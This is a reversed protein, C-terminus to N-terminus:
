LAFTWHHRDFCNMVDVTLAPANPVSVDDGLLLMDSIHDLRERTVADRRGFSVCLPWDRGNGRVTATTSGQVYEVEDSDRLGYRERDMNADLTCYVTVNIEGSLYISTLLPHGDLQLVAPLLAHSISKKSSPKMRVCVVMAERRWQEYVSPVLIRDDGLTLSFALADVLHRTSLCTLRTAINCEEVMVKLAARPLCKHRPATSGQLTDFNFVPSEQTLQERLEHLISKLAGERRECCLCVTLCTVAVGPLRCMKHSKMDGADFWSHVRRINAQLVFDTEKELRQSFHLARRTQMEAAHSAKEGRWIQIDTSVGLVSGTLVAV